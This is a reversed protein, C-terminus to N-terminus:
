GLGSKLPRGGIKSIFPYQNCLVEAEGSVGADFAADEGVVAAALEVAGTGAKVTQTPDALLVGLDQMLELDVDITARAPAGVHQHRECQPRFPYPHPPRQQIRM